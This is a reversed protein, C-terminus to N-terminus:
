VYTSGALQRPGTTLLSNPGICLGSNPGSALSQHMIRKARENSLLGKNHGCSLSPNAGFSTIKKSSRLKPNPGSALKSNRGKALTGAAVSPTYANSMLASASFSDQPVSRAPETRGGLLAQLAESKTSAIIQSENSEFVMRPENGSSLFDESSTDVSIRVDSRSTTQPTERGTSGLERVPSSAQSSQSQETSSKYLASFDTTKMEEYKQAPRSEEAVPKAKPAANKGTKTPSTKKGVASYGMHKLIAKAREENYDAASLVSDLISDPVKMDKKIKKKVQNKEESTKGSGGEESFTTEVQQDEQQIHQRQGSTSPQQSQQATQQATQQAGSWGAQQQPATTRPDVWTTQRTAHNIFYYRRHNPDYKAEWGPPLPQQYVPQQFQNNFSPYAAM